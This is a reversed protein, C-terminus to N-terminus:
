IYIALIHLNPPPSIHNMTIGIKTSAKQGHALNSSTQVADNAACRMLCWKTLWKKQKGFGALVGQAERANAEAAAEQVRLQDDLARLEEQAKRLELSAPPSGVPTALTKSEEQSELLKRRLIEATREAQAEEELETRRLRM